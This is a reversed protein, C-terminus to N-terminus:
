VPFNFILNGSVLVNLDHLNPHHVKEARDIDAICIPLSPFPNVSVVAKVHHLSPHSRKVQLVRAQKSQSLQQNSSGEAEASVPSISASSRSKTDFYHLGDKHMKFENKSGDPKHVTFISEPHSVYTLLFKSRVNKLSLM